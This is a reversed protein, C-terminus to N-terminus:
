ALSRNRQGHIQARSCGASKGYFIWGDAPYGFQDTAYVALGDIGATAPVTVSANDWRGTDMNAVTLQLTDGPNVTFTTGGYSQGYGNDFGHIAEVLEHTM